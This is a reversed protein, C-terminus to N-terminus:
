NFLRLFKLSPETARTRWDYFYIFFISFTAFRMSAHMRCAEFKVYCSVTVSSPVCCTYFEVYQQRFMNWDIEEIHKQWGVQKGALKPWIASVCM